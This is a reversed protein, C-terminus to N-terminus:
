FLARNGPDRWVDMDTNISMLMCGGNYWFLDWLGIFYAVFKYTLSLTSRQM